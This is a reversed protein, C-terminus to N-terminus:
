GGIAHVLQREASKEKLPEALRAVGRARQQPKGFFGVAGGRRQRLVRPAAQLREVLRVGARPDLVIVQAVGAKIAVAAQADGEAKVLRLATVNVIAPSVALDDPTVRLAGFGLGRAAPQLTKLRLHSFFFLTTLAALSNKCIRR